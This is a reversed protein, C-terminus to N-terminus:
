ACGGSARRRRSGPGALGARLRRPASGRRDAHGVAQLSVEGAPRGGTRPFPRLAPSSARAVPDTPRPPHLADHKIAPRARVQAQRPLKQLGWLGSGQVWRLGRLPQISRHSQARRLRGQRRRRESCRRWRLWALPDRCRAGRCRDSSEAPQRLASTTSRGMAHQRALVLLQGVRRRDDPPEHARTSSEWQDLQAAAEVDPPHTTTRDPAPSTPLSSWDCRM